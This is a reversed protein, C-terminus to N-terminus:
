LSESRLERILNKVDLLRCCLLWVVGSGLSLVFATTSSKLYNVILFNGSILLVCFVLLRGLFKPDVGLRFTRHVVVLQILAVCCQTSLTAWAAGAAGYRPILWFNLLINAVLGTLAAWNLTSLAGKATLLTGYIMVVFQPVLSWMLLQFVPTTEVVKDHYIWSLMWTGHMASTCALILGGGLMLGTTMALLPRFDNQEQLLRSFIPYLLNNFLLAFMVVADLLRFAQAYIGAEEKGSMAPLLREIMVADVRSYLMMLLILLAFPFSQKVIYLSYSTSWKWRQFGVKSFLVILALISTLVYTTLQTWVFTEIRIKQGSFYLLYGAFLLLLFKDLVSFLTDLRFWHMGAFYSRCFLIISILFQNIVLLWLVKQQDPKYGVLLGSGLTIATFVLFLVLKVPLLKHLTQKLLHPHQAIHRTNYNTIGLDLLMNFLYTFNLLSFYTGYAEAGVQNQVGVDIGFIALPKIIVNLLLLVVIHSLFTKQM